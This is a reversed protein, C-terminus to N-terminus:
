PAHEDGELSPWGYTPGKIIACWTTADEDTPAAESGIPVHRDLTYDRGTTRQRRRDAQRRNENVLEDWPEIVRLEPAADLM